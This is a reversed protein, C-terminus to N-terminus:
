YFEPKERSSLYGNKGKYASKLAEVGGRNFAIYWKSIFGLSVSLIQQIKEYRYKELM